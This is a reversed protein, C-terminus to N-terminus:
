FKGRRLGDFLLLDDPRNNRIEDQTEQINIAKNVSKNEGLAKTIRMGQWFVFVHSALLLAAVIPIGYTGFFGRVGVPMLRIIWALM